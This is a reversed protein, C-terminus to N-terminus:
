KFDSWKLGMNKNLWNLAQRAVDNETDIKKFSEPSKFVQTLSGNYKQSPNSTFSFAGSTGILSSSLIM